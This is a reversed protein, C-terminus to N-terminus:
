EETRRIGDVLGMSPNNGATIWLLRDSNLLLKRVSHFDPESLTDLLPQELELLSIFMNGELDTAASDSIKAWNTVLVTYGHDWLTAQLACCFSSIGSTTAPPEVIVLDSKTSTGNTYGNTPGNAHETQRKKYLAVSTEVDFIREFGEAELIAASVNM